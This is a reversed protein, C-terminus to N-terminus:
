WNGLEDFFTEESDNEEAAELTETIEESVEEEEDHSITDKDADAKKTAKMIDVKEKKRLITKPKAKPKGTKEIDEEIEDEIEEIDTNEEDNIM